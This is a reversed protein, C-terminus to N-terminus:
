GEPYFSHFQAQAMKVMRPAVPDKSAELARFLGAPLHLSFGWECGFNDMALHLPKEWDGNLSIRPAWETATELSLKSIDAADLTSLHLNLWSISCLTAASPKFLLHGDAALGRAASVAVQLASLAADPLAKTAEATVSAAEKDSESAEEPEAAADSETSTAAEEEASGAADDTPALPDDEGTSSGLAEEYAALAADLLRTHIAQPLLVSM